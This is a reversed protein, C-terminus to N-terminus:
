ILDLRRRRLITLVKARADRTTSKPKGLWEAAQRESLGHLLAELDHLYELANAHELAMRARESLALVRLLREHEALDDEPSPGPDPLDFALTTTAPERKPRMEDKVKDWLFRVFTSPRDEASRTPPRRRPDWTIVGALLKQIVTQAVDEAKERDAGRGRAYRVMAATIDTLFAPTLNRLYWQSEISISLRERTHLYPYGHALWTVAKDHPSSRPWHFERLVAGTAAAGDHAAVVTTLRDPGLFYRVDFPVQAAAVCGGSCDGLLHRKLFDACGLHTGIHFNTEVRVRDERGLVSSSLAQAAVLHSSIVKAVYQGHPDQLLRPALRAGHSSAPDPGLHPAPGLLYAVAAFLDHPTPM